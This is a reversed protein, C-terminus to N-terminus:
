GRADLLWFLLLLFSSAGHLQLFLQERIAEEVRKYVGQDTVVAADYEWPAARAYQLLQAKLRGVGGGTRASIVKLTQVCNVTHVPLFLPCGLPIGNTVCM